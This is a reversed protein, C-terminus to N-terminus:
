LDSLINEVSLLVGMLFSEGESSEVMRVEGVVECRVMGTSAM